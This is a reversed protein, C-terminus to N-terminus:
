YAYYHFVEFLVIYPLTDVFVEGVFLLEDVLSSTSNSLEDSELDVPLMKLCSLPSRHQGFGLM